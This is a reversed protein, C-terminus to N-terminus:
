EKDISQFFVKWAKDFESLDFYAGTAHRSMKRLLVTLKDRTQVGFTWHVKICFNESEEWSREIYKCCESLPSGRLMTNDYLFVMYDIYGKPFQELLLQLVKLYFDQLSDFEVVKGDAVLNIPNNTLM